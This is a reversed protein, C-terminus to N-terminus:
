RPLQACRQLVEEPTIDVPADGYLLASQSADSFDEGSWFAQSLGGGVRVDDITWGNAFANPAANPLLVCDVGAQAATAADLNSDVRLFTAWRYHKATATIAGFTEFEDECQDASVDTVLMLGSFKCDAFQRVLGALAVAADDLDDFELVGDTPAGCRHLLTAPSPLRLVLDVQNALSHAVAQAVQLAREVASDLSLVAEARSLASDGEGFAANLFLAPTIDLSLVQSKLAANAQNLVSSALQPAAQWAANGAAFAKTAYGGPEIWVLPRPSNNQLFDNLQGSM